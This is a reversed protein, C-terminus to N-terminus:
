RLDLQPHVRQDRQEQHDREDEYTPRRGAGVVAVREVSVVTWRPESRASLGRNNRFARGYSQRCGGFVVPAGMARKLTPTWSCGWAVVTSSNRAAHFAASASPTSLM